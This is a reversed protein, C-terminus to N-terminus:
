QPVLSYVHSFDLDRSLYSGVTSGQNQYILPPINITAELVREALKSGANATSPLLVTSSGSTNSDSSAVKIADDILSVLLAAGIREPWRNDVFGDIGSEGLAGTAPSDLDIVVGHPTRLRTWLVPIRTTGPKVQVIRYEGDLHSGREALVVKGDESWVNRELQCGVFGSASTVIRTKLTCLFLTGKPITLSRNPLRRALATPTSSRDFSGLVAATAGNSAGHAGSQGTPLFAVAPNTSPTGAANNSFQKLQDVVGSLQEQYRRLNAQAAGSADPYTITDRSMAGVQPDPSRSAFPPEDGPPTVVGSHGHKGSSTARVPIPESKQHEIAPVAVPSQKDGHKAADPGKAAAAVAAHDAPATDSFQVKPATNAAADVTPPPPEDRKGYTKAAVFGLVALVSLLLGGIALLQRTRSPKVPPTLPPIGADADLPHPAETTM